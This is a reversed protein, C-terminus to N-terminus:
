QNKRVLIHLYSLLFVRIASALSSEPNKREYIFSCLEHINCKQLEAIDHLISWVQPELTVSTRRGAILINRKKLENLSIFVAAEAAELDEYVGSLRLGRIFLFSVM